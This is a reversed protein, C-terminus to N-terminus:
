ELICNKEFEVFIVFMQFMLKGEFSSLDVVLLDFIFLKIGKDILM